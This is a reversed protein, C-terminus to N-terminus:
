PQRRFYGGNEWKTTVKRRIPVASINKRTLRLFLRISRSRDMNSFRGVSYLTYIKPILRVQQNGKSWLLDLPLKFAGKEESTVLPLRGDSNNLHLVIDTHNAGMSTMWPSTPDFFRVTTVSHGRHFLFM